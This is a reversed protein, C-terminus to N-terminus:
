PPELLPPDFIYRLMHEWSKFILIRFTCRLQNWYEKRASFKGRCNQYLRDTLEFIQHCYFALLNLIFFIMSLNHKGHGYNHEIHYGQNKLANFTENEIKWRARACRVLEKINNEDIGIDTVWSNRYTVKGNVIIQYELFNVNDANKTANLPV